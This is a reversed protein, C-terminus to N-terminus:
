INKASNTIITMKATYKSDVALLLRQVFAPFIIFNIIKAIMKTENTM